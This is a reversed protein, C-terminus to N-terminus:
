DRILMEYDSHKGIWYWLLGGVHIKALARHELGVRASWFNGVRKFRLSPHQTNNLLLLFNKDAVDRIEEPLNRYHFWFGPTAFHKM